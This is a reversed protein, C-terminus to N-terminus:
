CLAPFPDKMDAAATKARVRGTWGDLVTRGSFPLSQLSPRLWDHPSTMALQGIPLRCLSPGPRTHCASLGCGSVQCSWAGGSDKGLSLHTRWGGTNTVWYPSSPRSHPWSVGSLMAPTQSQYEPHSSGPDLALCKYKSDDSQRAENWLSSQTQVCSVKSSIDWCLVVDSCEDHSELPDVLLELVDVVVGRGLARRTWHPIVRKM